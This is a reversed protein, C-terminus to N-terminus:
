FVLPPRTGHTAAVTSCSWRPPLACTADQNALRVIRLAAHLDGSTGRATWNFAPTLGGCIPLITEARGGPGPSAKCGTDTPEADPDTPEADSNCARTGGRTGTTPQNGQCFLYTQQNVTQVFVGLFPRILYRTASSSRRATPYSRSTPFCAALAPKGQQRRLRDHHRPTTTDARTFCTSRTGADASPRRKSVTKRGPFSPNSPPATRQQPEDLGRTWFGLASGGLRRRGDAIKYKPDRTAYALYLKGNFPFAEADIARGCTWAGSPRFVPNSPDREFHM